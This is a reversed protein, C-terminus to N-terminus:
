GRRLADPAPFTEADVRASGFATLAHIFGHLENPRFDFTAEEILARRDVWEAGMRAYDAESMGPRYAEYPYRTRTFNSSFLDLLWYPDSYDAIPGMRQAAEEVIGQRARSNLRLFIRVYDHGRELSGCELLVCCKLLIEFALLELLYAGNSETHVSGRLYQADAALRAAERLM